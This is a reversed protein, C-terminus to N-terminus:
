SFVLSVLRLVVRAAQPASFAGILRGLGGATTTRTRDRDGGALGGRQNSLPRPDGTLRRSGLDDDGLGEDDVGVGGHAVLGGGDQAGGDLDLEGGGGVGPAPSVAGGCGGGVGAGGVGVLGDGVVVLVGGGADGGGQGGGPGRPEAGGALALPSGDLAGDGGGLGGGGVVQDADDGVEGVVCFFGLAVLGWVGACPLVESWWSPRRVTDCVAVKLFVSPRHGDREPSYASTLSVCARARCGILAGFTALRSVLARYRM